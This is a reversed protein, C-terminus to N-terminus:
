AKPRGAPAPPLAPVPAPKADEGKATGPVLVTVKGDRERRRAVRHDDWGVYELMEFTGDPYDTRVPRGQLDYTYLTQAGSPEILVILKGTMRDYKRVTPPRNGWQTEVVRRGSGDALSRERFLPLGGPVTLEAAESGDDSRTVALRFGWLSREWRADDAGAVGVAGALVAVAAGASIRRGM